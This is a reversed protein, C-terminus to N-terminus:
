GLGLGLRLGLGLGLMTGEYFMNLTAIVSHFLYEAVSYGNKVPIMIRSSMNLWPEKM